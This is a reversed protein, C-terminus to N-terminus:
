IDREVGRIEPDDRSEIGDRLQPDTNENPSYKQEIPKLVPMFPLPSLSSLISHPPSLTTPSHPILCPPIRLLEAPIRTVRVRPRFCDFRERPYESREATVEPFPDTSLNRPM